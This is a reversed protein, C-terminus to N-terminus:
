YKKRGIFCFKKVIMEIQEETAEKISIKENFLDILLEYFTGFRKLFNFDSIVPNGTKFFLNKYNIMRKNNPLKRYINETENTFNMDFNMLINNLNDKLLMKEKPKEEKEINKNTRKKNKINKLQKEQKNIVELYKMDSQREGQYEIEKLQEKNKGEINKLRKM